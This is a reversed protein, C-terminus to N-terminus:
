SHDIRWSPASGNIKDTVYAWITENGKCHGGPIKYSVTVQADNFVKIMKNFQEASYGKQLMKEKIKAVYEAKPEAHENSILLYDHLLPFDNLPIQKTVFRKVNFPTLTKM